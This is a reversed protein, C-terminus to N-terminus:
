EGCAAAMEIVFNALLGADFEFAGFQLRVPRPGKGIPYVNQILSGEVGMHGARDLSHFRLRLEDDPSMSHLNAEGQRTRELQQLEEVFAAWVDGDIWTSVAGAFAGVRITVGVQIDGGASAAPVPPQVELVTIELRGDASALVM